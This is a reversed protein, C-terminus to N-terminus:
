ANTAENDDYNDAHDRNGIYECTMHLRLITGDYYTLTLSGLSIDANAVHGDYGVTEGKRVWEAYDRLIEEPTNNHIVLMEQTEDYERDNAEYHDTTM